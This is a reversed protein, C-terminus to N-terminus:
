GGCLQNYLEDCLVKTLGPCVVFKNIDQCSVSTNFRLNGNLQEQIAESTKMKITVNTASENVTSSDMNNEPYVVDSYTAIVAQNGVIKLTPKDSIFQVGSHVENFVQLKNWNEKPLGSIVRQAIKSFGSSGDTKELDFLDFIPEMRGENETYYKALHSTAHQLRLKPLGLTKIMFAITAEAIMERATPGDLEPTIDYKIVKSPINGTFYQSHNIGSLIVTPFRWIGDTNNHAVYSMLEKFQSAIRTIRTLGDLDGSLTLTPVPFSALEGKSFYAGYLVMGATSAVHTHVFRKLFVGGLSHGALFVKASGPMGAEILKQKADVVAVGLEIPNVLNGTYDTTLGIWLKHPSANQLAVGLDAYQEGSVYAGPVMIFAVDTGDSVVPKLVITKVACVHIRNVMFMLGIKVLLSCKSLSCAM